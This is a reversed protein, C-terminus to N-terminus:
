YSFISHSEDRLSQPFTNPILHSVQIIFKAPGWIFTVYKSANGFVEAVKGFQEMAEVFKRIRVMARNDKTVELQRQVETIAIKLDQVSTSEYDKQEKDSLRTRWKQFANSFVSDLTTM